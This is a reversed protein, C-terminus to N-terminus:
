EDVEFEFNHSQSEFNNPPLWSEVGLSWPEYRMDLKVLKLNMHLTEDTKSSRLFM